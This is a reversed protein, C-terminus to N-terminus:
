HQHKKGLRRVCPSMREPLKEDPSLTLWVQAGASCEAYLWMAPIPAVVPFELELSAEDPVAFAAQVPRDVRVAKARVDAGREALLCAIGPEVCHIGDLEVVAGVTALIGTGAARTLELATANLKGGRVEVADGNTEKGGSVDKSVGDIDVTRLTLEAARSFVGTGVAGRIVVTSLTASGGLVQVGALDGPASVTLHDLSSTGGNLGLAARATREVTLQSGTLAAERTLIGYEHRRVTTDQVSAKTQALFVGPGRGGEATLGTLTVEGATAHIATAPGKSDFASVVLRGESRVAKQFGGTARSQRVTATATPRVELGVTGSISGDLSLREADLQGRVSVAVQRQGSFTVAALSVHGTAVLGVDGGQVQVEELRADTAELVVGPGEVFLVVVGHGVLRSGKGVTFPGEYLGSRLHVVAPAALAPRLERWPTAQSGDGGALASADVWVELPVEPARTAPVSGPRACGIVAVLALGGWGLPWLDAARQKLDGV